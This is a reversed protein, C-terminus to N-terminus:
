TNRRTAHTRHRDCNLLAELKLPSMLLHFTPETVVMPEMTRPEPTRTHAARAHAV